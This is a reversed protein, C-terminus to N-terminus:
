QLGGIGPFSIPPFSTTNGGTIPSAVGSSGAFGSPNVGANRNIANFLLANSVGSNIGGTLANTGGIIGSAQSQGIAGQTQAAANAGSVGTGAANSGLQSLQLLRHFYNGYQQTALGQNYQSVAALAGGSKGLGTANLYNTLGANGQQLAFQYDPSNTFTSFDPANGSAGTLTSLINNAGVGTNIFPQLQGRAQNQSNLAATEAGVQANSAQTSALYGLGGTIAGAGIIATAVFSM